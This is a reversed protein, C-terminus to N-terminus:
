GQRQKHKKNTKCYVFVRGKRRVMYCDQCFKKVSTKTKMARVWNLGMFGVLGTQAVSTGFLQTTQKVAPSRFLTGFM